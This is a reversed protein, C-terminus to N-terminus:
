VHDFDNSGVTRLALSRIASARHNLQETIAAAAARTAREDREGVLSRMAEQHLAVSGFAVIVLLVALPLVTLAFLQLPLGRWRRLLM